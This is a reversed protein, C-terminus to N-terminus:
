RQVNCSVYCCPWLSLVGQLSDPQSAKICCCLLVVMATKTVCRVMCLHGEESPKRESGAGDSEAQIESHDTAAREEAELIM